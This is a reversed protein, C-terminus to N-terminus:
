KQPQEMVTIKNSNHVVIYIDTNGQITKPSGQSPSHDVPQSNNLGYTRLLLIFIRHTNDSERGGGRRSVEEKRKGKM